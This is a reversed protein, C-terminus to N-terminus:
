MLKLLCSCKESERTCQLHPKFQYGCRRDTRVEEDTKRGSASMGVWTRFGNKREAEECAEDGLAQKRFGEESAKGECCISILLEFICRSVNGQGM